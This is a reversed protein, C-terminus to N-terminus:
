LQTANCSLLFDTNDCQVKIWLLGYTFISGAVSPIIKVGSDDNLKSIYRIQGGPNLKSIRPRSDLLTVLRLFIHM